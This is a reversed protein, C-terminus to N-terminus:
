SQALHKIDFFEVTYELLVQVSTSAIADGTTSGMINLIALESPNAGTTAQYRDDAMYQSKTRGVLSPIYTKGSLVVAAAGPNQQIYKARPNERLESFNLPVLTENAPLIGLQLATSSNGAVNLRYGCSIVRYRNYLSALTDFAYPQHGIGTRDPDYISNLNIYYMGNTLDTTIVSSYKMKTIFRAPIPHLARNVLTTPQRRVPRRKVNSKRVFKKKMAM